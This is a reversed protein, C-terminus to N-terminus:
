AVKGCVLGGNRRFLSFDKTSKLDFESFFEALSEIRQHLQNITKIIRDVCKIRLTTFHEREPKENPKDPDFVYYWGRDDLDFEIIRKDNYLLKMPKPLDPNIQTTKPTTKPTRKM